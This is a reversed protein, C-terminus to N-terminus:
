PTSLFLNSRLDWGRKERESLWDQEGEVFDYDLARKLNTKKQLVRSIAWHILGVYPIGTSNHTFNVPQHSFALTSIGASVVM